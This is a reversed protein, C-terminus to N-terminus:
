RSLGAKGYELCTFGKFNLVRYQWPTLSALKRTRTSTIALIHQRQQKRM